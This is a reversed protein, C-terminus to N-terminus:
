ELNWRDITNNVYHTEQLCILNLMKAVLWNLVLDRKKNDRMGNVNITVLTLTM